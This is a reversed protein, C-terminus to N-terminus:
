KKVKIILINSVVRLDFIAKILKNM